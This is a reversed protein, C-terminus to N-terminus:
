MQELLGPYSKRLCEVDDLVAGPFLLFAMALRHDHKTDLGAGAVIPEGKGKVHLENDSLEIEAYPALQDALAQLRDSEKYRLNRVNQFTIDAPLLAALAAMVPVTDLNDRVDLVMQPPAELPKASIEICSPTSVCHMADRCSVVVNMERFWEAIVSDGQISELSLPSIIYENEPHLRAYAFWFLAASWDGPAGIQTEPVEVGPIEVPWNRTLALTMRLYSLSPIDTTTLHLTRLNLLPAALVLASAMQSSQSADLTLSLGTDSVTDTDTKGRQLSAARRTEVSRFTKGKILWGDGVREIEAGIRRLVEVLPLIPRQLLRATGTLLWTGPTAVLLPMLFRYAAGCDAVDITTLADAGMGKADAMAHLARWVVRVDSGDADTVPPIEGSRVYAMVMWRIKISKNDPLQIEYRM